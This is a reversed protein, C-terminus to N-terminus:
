IINLYSEEFHDMEERTGITIRVGNSVGFAPLHRLIVGQELMQQTFDAAKQKDSFVIMVSNAASPVYSVKHEDLFRYLRERNEIVMEVSQRLFHHDDYAALAAAQATATPEFTLKTKMMQEIIKPHGLAYGVRLGALGFAKSFTRLTVVNDFRYSLSDPYTSLHRAYEFYAEDLVVLVDSPIKEMLMEFEITSIYTGTPNNPNAIYIMKTYPGVADALANVDFRYDKTLPIKKLKVNQIGTQVFFGVFTADATLAEDSQLFFTRCLNAILSESGAGVIVNEPDLENAEAIAFRLKRSIPDPYDQINKLAKKVATEVKASCGLRNENSALKSIRSPKYEKGVEALTKGAVYAELQQINPPILLRDGKKATEAM